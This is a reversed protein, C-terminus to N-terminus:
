ALDDWTDIDHAEGPLAPVEVLDLDALLVHVPLGRTDDPAAALLAATRYVGCLPQRRVDHLLAGDASGGAETLAATLRAVTRLTIRPMDVALVLATGPRTLARVGAVLGAAPGGGPPEERVYRVSSEGPVPPGVVVVDDIGEAAALATALLTRGRVRLTAKAVGGLRRGSGGSLVVAGDPVATSM